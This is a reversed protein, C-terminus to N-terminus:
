TKQTGGHKHFISDIKVAFDRSKLESPLSHNATDHYMGQYVPLLMSKENPREISTIASIVPLNSKVSADLYFGVVNAKKIIHM